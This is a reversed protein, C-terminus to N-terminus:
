VYIYLLFPLFFFSFYFRCPILSPSHSVTIHFCFLKVIMEKARLLLFLHHNSQKLVLIWGYFSYYFIFIKWLNIIVFFFFIFIYYSYFFFVWREVWAIYTHSFYEWLCNRQIVKIRGSVILELQLELVRLLEM